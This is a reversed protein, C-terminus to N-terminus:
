VEPVFGDCVRSPNRAVSRAHDGECAGLENEDRDREDDQECHGPRTEGAQARVRSGRRGCREGGEFRAPCLGSWSEHHVDDASDV